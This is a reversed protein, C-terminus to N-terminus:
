TLLIEEIVKPYFEYELKHVKEAISDANDIEPNIGVKKQFVITGEDYHENVYHITIGTVDDGAELVAKHVHHGYMGKGGYKPLLAPHINLIRFDFLRILYDPIKWLFGALVIFNINLDSLKDLVVLNNYFDDKSFIFVPINFGKMRTIVGAKPNNTFVAKICIKHNEKFYQAINEANTGSGSAFIAINTIM